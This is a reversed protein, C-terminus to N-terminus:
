AVTIQQVRIRVYTGDSYRQFVQWVVCRNSVIEKGARVLGDFAWSDDPNTGFWLDGVHKDASDLIRILWDYRGRFDSLVAKCNVPINLGLQNLLKQEIESKLQLWPIFEAVATGKYCVIGAPKGVTPGWRTHLPEHTRTAVAPPESELLSGYHNIEEATLAAYQALQLVRNVTAITRLHLGNLLIDLLLARSPRRVGRELRGLSQIDYQTQLSGVVEKQTLDRELRLTKIYGGLKQSARNM